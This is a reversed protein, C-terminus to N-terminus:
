LLVYRTINSLPIIVKWSEPTTKYDFALLMIIMCICNNLDTKKLNQEKVKIFLNLRKWETDLQDAVGAHLWGPCNGLWDMLGRLQHLIDHQRSGGCFKKAVKQKTKMITESTNLLTLLDACEKNSLARDNENNHDTLTRDILDRWQPSLRSKDIEQLGSLIENPDRFLKTHEDFAKQKVVQIDNFSANVANGYRLNKRIATKCRPCVKPQIASDKSHYCSNIWQDLGKVELVHGCDELYVFLATDEDETGFFIECLEEQDCIRCLPPCSEGCVGVCQHGCDLKKDCRKDCPPRNCPESCPRSCKYHKCTWSCPEGCPICPEGCLKPCKNHVCRTECPRLCPPCDGCYHNVCLHNCVLPRRCVNQCGMHMRGQMCTACNGACLHGCPMRHNCAQRCEGRTVDADCDMLSVHGCHLIRLVKVRCYTTHNPSGCKEACQHGCPLYHGCPGGCPKKSLDEWCLAQIQHQPENKCKPFVKAVKKYCLGCNEHCLKQCRHENSCLIKCCPKMCLVNRHTQDYAHCVLPCTHGCPMRCECPLRCGGEPVQNFDEGTAAIIGENDQHNPCGLPLGHGRNNGVHKLVKAWTCNEGFMKFDGIVYFGMKARSLAVCIRNEVGMFGLRAKSNSRVLSLLVIDNEEGQYNDLICIRVGMFQHKPMKGRILFMQASYPTLVTIQQPKYGQQLLYVCLRRIYNAEHHNTKSLLDDNQDESHQHDVLFLNHKIGRVAPYHLVSDHDKLEPYIPKMLVSIEPRMRHQTSLTVCDMGNHIMREFLSIDLHYKRALENVAPSPRLQKHDGILIVHKCHPNLATVVHAELVEAAEEIILISPALQQIVNQYRAAGTTTLGIVKMRKMIELDTHANIEKLRQSADHYQTALHQTQERLRERFKILWFHYLRWRGDEQLQTVDTVANAEEESMANVNTLYRRLYNRRQNTEAVSMQRGYAPYYVHDEDEPEVGLHRLAMTEIKTRNDAVIRQYGDADDVDWQRTIDNKEDDSGSDIMEGDELATKPQTHPSYQMLFPHELWQMVAYKNSVCKSKLQKMHDDSMVESLQETYLIRKNLQEAIATYKEIGEETEDMESRIDRALYGFKKRYVHLMCNELIKSQCRGGIRMIGDPEFAHIGELFQDLAHNTYCVVMMPKEQLTSFINETNKLLVKAIKLGLFTKGTGPPGQILVFERTLAAQLATYQSSDLGIDDASPWMEKQLVPVHSWQCANPETLFSMDFQTSNAQLYSPPKHKMDCEVIYSSMALGSELVNKLGALVPRYAEFLAMSEVMVFTESYDLHLLSEWNGEVYIDLLGVSLDRVDRNAVIGFIMTEFNDASLCVLSGWLFRKSTEWRVRRLRTTDFQIKYAVGHLRCVPGIVRTNVYLRIDETRGRHHFLQDRRQLYAQIGNQLPIIFDARLLRFQVDLYHALDQYRGRCKNIRLFPKEERILDDQSPLISTKLFDNPPKLFDEESYNETIKNEKRLKEIGRMGTQLDAIQSDLTDKINPPLDKVKCIYEVTLLVQNALDFTSPMKTIFINLISIMNGIYKMNDKNFDTISQLFLPLRNIWNSSRVSILLQMLTNPFTTTCCARGILLLPLGFRSSDENSQTADLSKKFGKSPDVLQLLIDEDTKTLLNEM